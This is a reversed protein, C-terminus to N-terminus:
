LKFISLHLVFIACFATLGTIITFFHLIILSTIKIKECHIYDEIIEKMGISGHYLGVGIFLLLMITNFPSGVLALLEANSCAMIRIILTVFWITLFVLAIASVRQSWWVKTGNRGSGLGKVKGLDSRLSSTNYNSM